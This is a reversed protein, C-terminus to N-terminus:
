LCVEDKGVNPKVFPPYQTVLQLASLGSNDIREQFFLEFKLQKHM